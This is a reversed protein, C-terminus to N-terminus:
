LHVPIIAKVDPNKHLVERVREMDLNFTGLEIDALVPTAGIQCIAGITAFFTYPTTLVKDGPGIRAALLALFLADSGSACGIAFRTSCYQALDSELAKVDEGLIFIQSDVVRTLEAMIEERLSEHQARLDLLPISRRDGPTTTTEM